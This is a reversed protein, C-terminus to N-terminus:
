LLGKLYARIRACGAKLQDWFGATAETEPSNNGSSGHFILWGAVLPVVGFLGAFFGHRLAVIFLVWSLTLAGAAMLALGFLKTKM